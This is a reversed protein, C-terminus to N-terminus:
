FTAVLTFRHASGLDNKFGVFAYDFKFQRYAVGGGLSLTRSDYGIGYGTRLAFYEKYSYEGGLNFKPELDSFFVGDAMLTVDEILSVPKYAIGIRFEKSLPFAESTFEPETGINKVAGGLSFEDNLVSSFGADFMLSTASEYDIKEYAYKISVGLNFRSVDRAYTVAGIFYNEDFTGEPEPSPQTRREIDTVGGLVLYGGIAYQRGKSALALYNQHDDIIYSNYMFMVQNKGKFSNLLAPNYYASSIDTGSATVAEALAAPRSGVGIRLFAFSSEGADALALVPFMILALAINLKLWNL